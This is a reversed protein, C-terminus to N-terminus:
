SVGHSHLESCLNKMVTRQVHGALGDSESSRVGDVLPLEETISWVLPVRMRACDVRVSASAESEVAYLELHVSWQADDITERSGSIIERKAANYVIVWLIMRVVVVVRTARIVVDGATVSALHCHTANVEADWGVVSSVGIAICTDMAVGCTVEDACARFLGTFEVANLLVPLGDTVPSCVFASHAVLSVPEWDPVPRLM